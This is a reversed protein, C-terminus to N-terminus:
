VLEVEIWKMRCINGCYIMLRCYFDVRLMMERWPIIVLVVVVQKFVIIKMAVGVVRWGGFMIM